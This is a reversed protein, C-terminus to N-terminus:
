AGQQGIFRCLFREGHQAARFQVIHSHRQFGPWYRYGRCRRLFDVLWYRWIIALAAFIHYVISTSLAERKEEIGAVRLAYIPALASHGVPCKKIYPVLWDTLGTLNIRVLGNPFSVHGSIETLVPSVVLSRIRAM